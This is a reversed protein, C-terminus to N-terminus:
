VTLVGVGDEYVSRCGDLRFIPLIFVRRVDSDATVFAAMLPLAFCIVGIMEKTEVRLTEEEEEDLADEAPGDVMGEVAIGM